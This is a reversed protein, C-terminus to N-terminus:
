IGINVMMVFFLEKKIKGSLIKLTPIIQFETLFTWDIYKRQLSAAIVCGRVLTM